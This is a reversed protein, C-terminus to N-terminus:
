THPGRVQKRELERQLEALKEPHARLDAYGARLAAPAVNQVATALRAGYGVMRTIATRWLAESHEARVFSTGQQHCFGCQMRFQKDQEPTGVHVSAAWVNAPKAAALAQADTESRLVVTESANARIHELTADVFGPRRLRLHFRTDGAPLDVHVRGTADSFATRWQPSTQPAGPKAYGNDSTDVAAVGEPAVSVMTLPLPAGNTGHVVVDLAHASVPLALAMCLLLHRMM